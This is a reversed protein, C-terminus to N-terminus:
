DPPRYSDRPARLTGNKKSSASEHIRDIVKRIGKSVQTWAEDQSKWKIIAKGDKPLVQLKAFPALAWDVPRVIIPLVVAEGRDYRAMARKMEKGYCYDSSLFDASILLAILHASELNDDLECEWNMGAAVKRDHWVRIFGTKQLLTLHKDFDEKYKEDEHAYSCFLLLGQENTLPEFAGTRLVVRVDPDRIVAIQFNARMAVERFVPDELLEQITLRPSERAKKRKPRFRIKTCGHGGGVIDLDVGLMESVAAQFDRIAPVDKKDFNGFSILDIDNRSTQMPVFQKARVREIIEELMDEM